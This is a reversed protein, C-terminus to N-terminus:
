RSHLAGSSGLRQQVVLWLVARALGLALALVQVLVLEQAWEREQGQVLVAM